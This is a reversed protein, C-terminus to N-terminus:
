LAHFCWREMSEFDIQQESISGGVLIGPRDRCSGQGLPVMTVRNQLDKPVDGCVSANMKHFCNAVYEIRDDYEFFKHDTVPKNFVNWVSFFLYHSVCLVLMFLFLVGISYM